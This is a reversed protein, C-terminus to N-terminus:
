ERILFKTKIIVTTRWLRHSFKPGTNGSNFSFKTSTTGVPAAPSFNKFNSRKKAIKFLLQRKRQRIQLTVLPIVENPEGTSVGVEIYMTCSEEM